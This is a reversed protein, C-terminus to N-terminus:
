ESSRKTLEAQVDSVNRGHRPDTLVALDEPDISHLLEVPIEFAKAFARAYPLIVESLRSGDLPVLLKKYM